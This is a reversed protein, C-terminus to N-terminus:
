VRDAEETPPQLLEYLATEFASEFEALDGVKANTTVELLLEALSATNVLPAAIRHVAPQGVLEDFVDAPSPLAAAAGWPKVAVKTVEFRLESVPAALLEDFVDAPALYSSATPGEAYQPFKRQYALLTADKVLAPVYQKFHALDGFPTLDVTVVLSKVNAPPPPPQKAAPQEAPKEPAAKVISSLDLHERSKAWEAIKSVATREITGVYALVDGKLLRGKPGLAEIKSLAEEKSIGNELLLVEVAPSLKQNPNAVSFVGLAEKSGGPASKSQKPQKTEKPEKPPQEKPLQKSEKPQEKADPKPAEDKPKELTSLDDGPEALYAIPQGVPIGKDGDHKLIDWMIGDDQAEVDITAKDTEVEVLVDGAAFEDGSKLKWAVIGGETM